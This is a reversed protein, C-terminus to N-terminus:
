LWENIPQDSMISIAKFYATCKSNQAVLKYVKYVIVTVGVTCHMAQIHIKLFYLRKKNTNVRKNM